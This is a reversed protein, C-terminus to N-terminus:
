QWSARSLDRDQQMRVICFRVWKYIFEPHKHGLTAIEEETKGEVLHNSAGQARKTNERRNYFMLFVALAQSALVVSINLSNGIKDTPRVTPSHQIMKDDFSSRVDLLM